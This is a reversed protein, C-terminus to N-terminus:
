KKIGLREIRYELTTPKLGALEAAGGKGRIKGNTQQLISLIYDRETQEHKNKVESLTKPQATVPPIQNPHTTLTYTSAGTSLPSNMIWNNALSRGLTLLDLGESIIVAQEIINELERINGPWSYNLLETLTEESIGQYSKGMRQSFKQAFFHALLPIDELREQLAPLLIPFVSM